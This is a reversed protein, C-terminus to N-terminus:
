TGQIKVEYKGKCKTCHKITGTSSGRSPTSIGNRGPEVYGCNECKHQFYCRTGDQSVIVAGSVAVAQGMKTDRTNFGLLLLEGAIQGPYHAFEPIIVAYLTLKPPVPPTTLTGRGVGQYHPLFGAYVKSRSLQLHIHPM